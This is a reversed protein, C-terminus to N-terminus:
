LFFFVILLAMGMLFFNMIIMTSERRKWHVVAAVLMMFTLGVAALPIFFTYIDLIAPLVLGTAGAVELFGILKIQFGSYNEAWSMKEAFKEKAMILKMAGAMLFMFALLLQSVWVLTEM